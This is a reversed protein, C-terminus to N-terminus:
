GGQPMRVAAVNLPANLPCGLVLQVLSAIGAKPLDEALNTADSHAKVLTDWV